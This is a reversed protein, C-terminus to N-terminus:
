AHQRTSSPKMSALSAIGIVCAAVGAMGFAEWWPFWQHLLLITACLICIAGCVIVAVIALFAVATAIQAELAARMTTQFMHLESQLIRSVDNVAREILTPWDPYTPLGTDATPSHKETM